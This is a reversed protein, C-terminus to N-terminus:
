PSMPEIRVPGGARVQMYLESGNLITMGILPSTEAHDVEIAIRRRNWIVAGAYVDIPVIRGDALEADQISLWRLGLRTILRGPLSLAGSFGTDIICIIGKAHDARNLCRIRLTAELKSNVIGTM